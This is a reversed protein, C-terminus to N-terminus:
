SAAGMSYSEMGYKRRMHEAILMGDADKHKEFFAAMAPFLRKGIDLSAKKQEARGKIGAPLLAKQWEKSDIFQYPIELDELVVLYAELARVASVTAQFQGPNVMPREIYAMVMEVNKISEKLMERLVKTNIRTINKKKKTYDQGSMVPANMVSPMGDLMFGITGTVGNDIGILLQRNKLRAM